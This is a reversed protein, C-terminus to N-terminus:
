NERWENARDNIRDFGYKLANGLEAPTIAKSALMSVRFRLLDGVAGIPKLSEVQVYVGVISARIAEGREAIEEPTPAGERIAQQRALEARWDAKEM